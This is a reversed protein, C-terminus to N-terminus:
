SLNKRLKKNTNLQAQKNKACNKEAEVRAQQLGLHFGTHYGCLYWSLLMSSLSDVDIEDAAGHFTFAPPPPPPPPLPLFIPGGSYGPPMPPPFPFPPSSAHNLEPCARGQKKAKEKKVPKLSEPRSEDEDDEEQLEPQLQPDTTHTPGPPESDQTYTPNIPESDQAPLLASLDQEEENGYGDFRVVCRGRDPLLKRVVAPYVLGDESWVACCRWGVQWQGSEPETTHTLVSPESDQTHTPNIPESDQAPLLASLDQEEENGYGEFRVVCRGRDPLLKRVVAPYVLGDESWVACCRWGVQWQAETGKEEEKKTENDGESEGTVNVHMHCGEREMAPASQLPKVAKDYAKVLATDECFSEGVETRDSQYVIEGDLEAM